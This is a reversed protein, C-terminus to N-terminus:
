DAEANADREKEVDATTETVEVADVPPSLAPTSAVPPGIKDGFMTVLERMFVTRDVHVRAENFADLSEGAGYARETVDLIRAIDVMRMERGHTSELAERARTRALGLIKAPSADPDLKALEELSRQVTLGNQKPKIATSEAYGAKIAAQKTSMGELLYKGTLALRMNIDRGPTKTATPKPTEAAESM